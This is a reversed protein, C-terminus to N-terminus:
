HNTKGNLIDIGHIVPEIIYPLIEKVAKASGPLNIILTNKILGSVGRSLMGNKTKSLSFMRIAESIGPVEKELLSKTAEPTVDRKSLGTGGTTLILDVNQFVYKKIVTKIDEYEDKIIEYGSLIINNFDLFEIINKGSIDDNYTRTDSITIIAANM